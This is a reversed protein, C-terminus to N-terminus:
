RAARGEAIQERLKEQSRTVAIGIHGSNGAEEANDVLEWLAISSQLPVIHDSYSFITLVHLNVASDIVNVGALWLGLAGKWAEAIRGFSSEVLRDTAADGRVDPDSRHTGTM